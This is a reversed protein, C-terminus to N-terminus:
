RLRNKLITKRFKRYDFRIIGFTFISMGFSFASALIFLISIFDIKRHIVETANGETENNNEQGTLTSDDTVVTAYGSSFSDSSENKNESVGVAVDKEEESIVTQINEDTNEENDSEDPSDTVEVMDDRVYGSSGAYTVKYWVESEENVVKSDASISIGYPVVVLSSATVLPETRLNANKIFRLLYSGNSDTDEETDDADEDQTQEDIDSTTKNRASRTSQIVKEAKAAAAEQAAQAAAEQEAASQATKENTQEQAAAETNEAEQTSEEQAAASQNKSAESAEKLESNNEQAYINIGPTAFVLSMSIFFAPIFRNFRSKEWM